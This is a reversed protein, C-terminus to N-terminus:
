EGTKLCEVIDLAHIRRRMAVGSVMFAGAIVAAAFLYAGAGLVLPIRFLETNGVVAVWACMAYGLGVGALMGIVTLLIQEGFVMGTVEGKTFGLVRLSALERARESLAVRAGNYVVGFAIVVAFIVAVTLSVQFSDAITQEFGALSATRIGIGVLAPQRKLTLYLAGERRPDVSLLAGSIAGPEGTIQAAYAMDVYANAGLMEDVTAAVAVRVTRRAGERVEVTLSDGPSVGLVEALKTTLLLGTRPIRHAVLRQDVVQHLQAGAPLAFLATRREVAGHRLAVPVTRLPEVALVGPLRRLANVASRPAPERFAVSVDERQAYEFQVEKIRDVADFAFRSVVLMAFALAIGTVAAVARLPRRATNRVVIRASPALLRRLGLRELLGTEFQAPAPPRMGEAPPLRVAARVALWAGAVAAAAAIGCAALAVGWDPRAEAVPFRYYKAYIDAVAAALWFGLPVGVAAGAAVPVLALGLYHRGVEGNTFGFAKLLAVQARQTAVLRSLVVNLLFATVGLLIGPLIVAGVKNQEIEDSIFKHSAHESRGYAGLTGYPALLRDLAEIVAPESAGPALELALANFGSELGTASALLARPTWIVGFRRNDPFLEGGQMEYIYEPSIAVGVVRLRQWRGSLVAGLSDGPVLGNAQAFAESILVEDRAGPAPARGVRVYPVNLRPAGAAPISVFRGVAPEALGPVDVVAEWIIRPEAVRVGTVRAADRAVSAPARKVQVFVDAFRHDRYYNAQSEALFGRTSRLTVFLAIGSAAVLAVAALPGALGVVDRALKRNLMRM